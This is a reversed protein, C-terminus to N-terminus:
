QPFFISVEIQLSLYKVSHLFWFLGRTTEQDRMV